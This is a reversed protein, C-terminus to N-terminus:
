LANLINAVKEADELSHRFDLSITMLRSSELKSRENELFKAGWYISPLLSEESLKAYARDRLAVNQFFLTPCFSAFDDGSINTSNLLRWGKNKNLAEQFTKNVLNRAQWLKQLNLMKLANYSYFSIRSINRKANLRMEANYYFDRAKQYDIQALAASYAYAESFDCGEGAKKYMNNPSSNAQRLYGGDCLPLTKRLSAFVYDFNDIQTSKAFPCHSFDAILIVDSNENKWKAWVSFDRIAFFNVALVVDGPKAQLTSFDPEADSPFDDYFSVREQYFSRVSKIVWPCFYNPLFIRGKQISSALKLARLLADRGSAFLECEPLIDNFLAGAECEAGKAMCFKSEALPMFPTIPNSFNM